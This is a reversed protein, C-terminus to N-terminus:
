KNIDDQIKDAKHPTQTKIGNKKDERKEDRKESSEFQTNETLNALNSSEHERKQIPTSKEAIETSAGKEKKKEKKEM